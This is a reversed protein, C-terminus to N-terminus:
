PCGYNYQGPGYETKRRMCAPQHHYPLSTAEFFRKSGNAPIGLPNHEGVPVVSPLSAESLSEESARASWTAFM